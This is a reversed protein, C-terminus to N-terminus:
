LCRNQTTPWQREEHEADPFHCGRHYGHMQSPALRPSAECGSARGGRAPCRELLLDHLVDTAHRSPLGTATRSGGDAAIHCADFRVFCSWVVLSGLVSELIPEEPPPPPPWGDWRAHLPRIGEKSSSLRGACKTGCLVSGRLLWLPDDAGIARQWLRTDHMKAQKAEFQHSSCVARGQLGRESARVEHEHCYLALLCDIYPAGAGCHHSM